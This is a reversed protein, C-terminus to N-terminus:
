LTAYTRPHVFDIIYSKWDSIELTKIPYLSMFFVIRRPNRPISVHNFICFFEILSAKQYDHHQRPSTRVYLVMNVNCYLLEYSM